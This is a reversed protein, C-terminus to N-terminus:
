VLLSVPSHPWKSISPCIRMWEQCCLLAEKKLVYNHLPHLALFNHEFHQVIPVDYFGVLTTMSNLCLLPCKLFIWIFYSETQLHSLIQMPWWLHNCSNQNRVGLCYDYSVFYLFVKSFPVFWKMLIMSVQLNKGLVSNSWETFRKKSYDVLRFHVDHCSVLSCIFQLTSSVKWSQILVTM